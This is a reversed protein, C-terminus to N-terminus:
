RWGNSEKFVTFQNVKHLAMVNFASIRLHNALMQDFDKFFKTLGSVDSNEFAKENM